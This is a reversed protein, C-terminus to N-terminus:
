ASSSSCFHYKWYLIKLLRGHFVVLNYFLQKQRSFRIMCYFSARDRLMGSFFASEHMVNQKTFKFNYQKLCGIRTYQVHQNKGGHGSLVHQKVTFIAQIFNVVLIFSARILGSSLVQHLIVEPETGVTRKIEITDRASLHLSGLTHTHRHM